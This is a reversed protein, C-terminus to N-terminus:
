PNGRACRLLQQPFIKSTIREWETILNLIHDVYFANNPDACILNDVRMIEAKKLAGKISNQGNVITQMQLTIAPHANEANSHGRLESAVFYGMVAYLAAGLTLMTAVNWKNSNRAYSKKVTEVQM